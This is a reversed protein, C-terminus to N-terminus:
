SIGHITNVAIQLMGGTDFHVIYIFDIIMIIDLTLFDDIVQVMYRTMHYLDWFILWLCMIKWINSCNEGIATHTVRRVVISFALETGM